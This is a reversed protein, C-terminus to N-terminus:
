HLYVWAKNAGDDSNLFKGIQLSSSGQVQCRTGSIAVGPNAAINLGNNSQTWYPGKVVVKCISGTNCAGDLIGDLTLGTTTTSTWCMFAGGSTGTTIFVGACADTQNAGDCSKVYMVHVTNIQSASDGSAINGNVDIKEGPSTQNVGVNGGAQFTVRDANNTSDYFRFDNGTVYQIWRNTSSAAMTILNNGSIGNIRIGGNVFTTGSGVELSYTPNTVGIGVYNLNNNYINNGSTTWQNSVTSLVVGGASIPNVCTISGTAYFVCADNNISVNSSVHLAVTTTGGSYSKTAIDVRTNVTDVYVTNKAAAISEMVAPNAYSLMPISILINTAIVIFGPTVRM